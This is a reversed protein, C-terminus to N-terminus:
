REVYKMSRGDFHIRKEGDSEISIFHICNRSLPLFSRTQAATSACCYGLIWCFLVFVWTISEGADEEDSGKGRARRRWFVLPHLKARRWVTQIDSARSKERSERTTGELWGSNWRPVAPPSLAVVSWISRSPDVDCCWVTLIHMSHGPLAFWIGSLSHIWPLLSNFFRSVLFLLSLSLSKNAFLKLKLNSFLQKQVVQWPYVIYAVKNLCSQTCCCCCNRWHYLVPHISLLEWFPWRAGLKLVFLLYCHGVVFRFHRCEVREGGWRLLM